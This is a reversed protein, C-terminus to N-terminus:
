SLRSGPRRSSCCGISQRETRLRALKAELRGALRFMKDYRRRSLKLGRGARQRRDLRDERFSAAGPRKSILRNFEELMRELEDPDNGEPLGAQLFLLALERAKAFRDEHKVPPRFVTRMSSWGFIRRVSAAVRNHIARELRRALEAPLARGILEAVTEPTDRQVLTAHLSSIALDPSM